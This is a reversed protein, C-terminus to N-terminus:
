IQPTQITVFLNGITQLHNVSGTYPNFLLECTGIAIGTQKPIIFDAWIVFSGDKAPRFQSLTVGISNKQIPAPKNIITLDTDRVNILVFSIMKQPNIFKTWNVILLKEFEEKNVLNEM